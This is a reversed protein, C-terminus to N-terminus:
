ISLAVGFRWGTYCNYSANTSLINVYLAEMNRLNLLAGQWVEEIQQMVKRKKRSELHASLQACKRKTEEVQNELAEIQKM